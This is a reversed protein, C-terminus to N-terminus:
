VNVLILFALTLGFFFFGDFFFLLLVFIFFVFVILEPLLEALVDLKSHNFVLAVSHSESLEEPLIQKWM